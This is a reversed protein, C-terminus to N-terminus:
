SLPTHLLPQQRTYHVNNDHKVAAHRHSHALAESGWSAARGCAWRGGGRAAPSGWWAWPRYQPVAPSFHFLIHEHIEQINMIKLLINVQIANSLNRKEPTFSVFAPVSLHSLRRSLLLQIFLMLSVSLQEHRTACHRSWTPGPLCLAKTSSSLYCTPFLHALRFHLYTQM